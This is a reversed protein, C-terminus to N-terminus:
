TRVNIMRGADGAEIVTTLQGPSIAFVATM